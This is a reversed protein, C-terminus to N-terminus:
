MDLINLENKDKEKPAICQILALIIPNLEITRHNQINLVSLYYENVNNEIFSLFKKLLINSDDTLEQNHNAIQKLFIDDIFESYEPKNFDYEQNKIKSFCIESFKIFFDNIKEEKINNFIFDILKGHPRDKKNKILFDVSEPLTESREEILSSNESYYEVIKSTKINFENSNLLAFNIKRKYLHDINSTQILGALLSWFFGLKEISMLRKKSVDNNLICEYDIIQIKEITKKKSNFKAIFNYYVMDQNGLIYYNYIWQFVFNEFSKNKLIKYKELENRFKEIKIDYLVGGYNNKGLNFKELIILDSLQQKESSDFAKDENFKRIYFEDLKIFKVNNESFGKKECLLFNNLQNAYYENMIKENNKKSNYKLLYPNYIYKLFSDNIDCNIISSIKKFCIVSFNSGEPKEHITKNSSSVDGQKKTGHLKDFIILFQDLNYPDWSSLSKTNNSNKLFNKDKKIDDLCNYFISWLDENEKSKFKIKLKNEIFINFNDEISFNNLKSTIRDPNNKISYKFLYKYFDILTKKYQKYCLNGLIKKNEHIKEDKKEIENLTWIMSIHLLDINEIKKNYQFISDLNLFM